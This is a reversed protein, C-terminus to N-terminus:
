DATVLRAAISPVLHVYRDGIPAMVLVEIHRGLLTQDVATQDLM